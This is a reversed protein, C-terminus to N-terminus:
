SIVKLKAGARTFAAIARDIDDETHAASMQTRIRAQGQPVVPYFFGSVYIGAAHLEHAMAQALKAEGLMVPIIPHEGPKLTFGAAEMGARFRRANAFLRDRLSSDARYNSAIPSSERVVFGAVRPAQSEADGPAVGYNGILPATMTVIQGAYAANWSCSSPESVGPLYASKTTSSVESRTASVHTPPTREGLM